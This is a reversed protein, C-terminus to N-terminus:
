LGNSIWGITDNAITDLIWFVGRGFIVWLAVAALWAALMWRAQTETLPRNM